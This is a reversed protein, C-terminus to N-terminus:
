EFSKKLLDATIQAKLGLWLYEYLWIDILIVRYKSFPLNQNRRLIRREIKTAIWLQHNRSTDPNFLHVEYKGV